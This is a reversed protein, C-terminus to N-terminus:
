NKEAVLRTPITVIKRDFKDTCSVYLTIGANLSAPM